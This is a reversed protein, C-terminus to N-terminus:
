AFAIIETVRQSNGSDERELFKSYGSLRSHKTSSYNFTGIPESSKAYHSFQVRNSVYIRDITEFTNNGIIVAHM